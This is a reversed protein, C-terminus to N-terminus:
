INFDTFWRYFNNEVTRINWVLRHLLPEPRHFPPLGRRGRRPSGNDLCRTPLPLGFVCLPPVLLLRYPPFVGGEKEESCEALDEVALTLSTLPFYAKVM